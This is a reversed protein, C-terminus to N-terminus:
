KTSNEKNTKSMEKLPEWYVGEPKAVPKWQNKEGKETLTYVEVVEMSDAQMEPYTKSDIILQRRGTGVDLGEKFGYKRGGSIEQPISVKEALVEPNKYKFVIVTDVDDRLVTGEKDMFLQLGDAIEAPNKLNILDERFAIFVDNGYKTFKQNDNLFRWADWKRMGRAMLGDKPLLKEMEAITIKEGRLAKASIAQMEPTIKSTFNVGEGRGDGRLPSPPDKLQPSDVTSQPSEKLAAGPGDGAIKGNPLRDNADYDSPPGTKMQTSNKLEATHKNKVTDWFQTVEALPQLSRNNNYRVWKSGWWEKNVALNKDKCFKQMQKKGTLQYVEGGASVGTQNPKLAPAEGGLMNCSPSHRVLQKTGFVDLALVNMEEILRNTGRTTQGLGADYYVASDAGSGVPLSFATLDLDSAYVRGDKDALYKGELGAVQRAKMAGTELEWQYKAAVEATLPILGTKGDTKVEIHMPKATAEGQILMKLGTLKQPTELTFAGGYKEGVVALYQHYVKLLEKDTYTGRERMAKVESKLERLATQWVASPQNALEPLLKEMGKQIAASQKVMTQELPQNFERDFRAQAGETNKLSEEFLKSIAPLKKMVASELVELPVKLAQQYEQFKAATQEATLSGGQKKELQKYKNAIVEVQDRNGYIDALEKAALDGRVNLEARSTDKFKSLTDGLAQFNETIEQRINTQAVDARSDGGVRGTGESLGRGSGDGGGQTVERLLGGTQEGQEMTRGATRLTQLGEDLQDLIQITQKALFGADETTQLPKNSLPKTDTGGTKARGGANEQSQNKLTGSGQVDNIVGEIKTRLTQLEAPSITPKNKYNEVLDLINDIKGSATRMSGADHNLTKAIDYLKGSTGDAELRVTYVEVGRETPVRVEVNVGPKGSTKSKVEEVSITTDKFLRTRLKNAGQNFVSRDGFLVLGAQEKSLGSGKVAIELRRFVKGNLQGGNDALIKQCRGLYKTLPKDTALKGLVQVRTQVTNREAFLGAAKEIQAPTTKVGLNDLHHKLDTKLRGFNDGAGVIKNFLGVGGFFTNDVANLTGHYAPERIFKKFLTPREIMATKPSKVLWACFLVPLATGFGDAIRGAQNVASSGIYGYIGFGAGAAVLAPRGFTALAGFGFGFAANRLGIQADDKLM